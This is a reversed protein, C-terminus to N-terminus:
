CVLVWELSKGTQPAQPNLAPIQRLLACLCVELTAFVVSKGAEMEDGGAGGEGIDWEPRPASEEFGGVQASATNEQSATDAEEFKQFDDDGFGDDDDDDNEGDDKTTKSASDEEGDGQFGQFDDDDFDGDITKEENKKSGSKSDEEEEEKEGEERSGSTKKREEAAAKRLDDTWLRAARVVLEVVKVVQNQLHLSERTLLLRHCVNLLEVALQQPAAFLSPDSLSFSHYLISFIEPLPYDCPEM